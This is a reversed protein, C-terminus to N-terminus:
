TPLPDKPRAQTLAAADVLADLYGRLPQPHDIAYGQAYDVGLAALAARVAETETHEAITRKRLLHAIRTISGVVEASLPSSAMDQVFSGDIKIFDVDLARLHGYSCFGTGFDDLAFRCGLGRLEDIVRQARPPDRMASTETIEFCLRAAPFSSHHLREAVFDVFGEDLLAGASLNITCLAVAAAAEPRAELQALAMRVVHRDIRVALRFREAAAIFTDPTHPPGGHEDRMRLLLEFRAGPEPEAQLPVISQAYLLFGDHQLADRIRVTWRMGSVPDALTSSGTGAMRVRDGGLEKAAFCAADAQSLLEAFDGQGPQFPVLGISATTGFEEGAYRCRAGEVARLLGLSRERAATASTNRMLVVFEDAGLHGLTDDAHMQLRLADAVAVILADGARHSATDNVLKLNDLDLYALALSTNAPDGLVVRAQQEFAGRNPLGSLADTGARRQLRRALVRHEDVSLALAQPLIALLCLYGILVAAELTGSPRPFGAFGHAALAAILGVTLMASVATRMPTFRVAGWVMAALPLTTLGLAFSGSAGMGWAMLLYSAVLAINWLSREGALEPQSSRLQGRQWRAAGIMLAPAVSAIGLFDGLAWLLQASALNSARDMAWLGYGGILGGVLSMTMAGVMMRIAYRVSGPRLPTDRRALWGGALLGALNGAMSFALFGAPVPEFWLSKLLLAVPVLLAWRWGAVVVVAFAFGSAPWYLAIQSPGNLRIAFATAALYVAIFGAIRWGPSRLAIM